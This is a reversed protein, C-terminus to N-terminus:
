RSEKGHCSECKPSLPRYAPGDAGAAHCARCPATAHAGELRFAADRDHDFGPAPAFAEVTHCAECGGKAPRGAFGGGHPDAHCDACTRKAEFKLDGGAHCGTCPTARHAGELAFGFRAHAAVDVTSPRFGRVDHCAACAQGALRGAHPDAHCDLCGASPPRLVVRASGWAAVPVAAGRAHCAACKVAGHKGELPYAGKAHDAAGYAAPTFGSVSHCAACDAPRGALTATGRHADAHCTACTAFAPKKLAATSFDGHCDACAAAAHRGRLPYRTRDHAFRERDVIGFGRTGHCDACGAGLAGKHPDAHCAACSAAPVPSYVPVLHGTGDRKPALRPALHCDDCKVEAHKGTLAYATTDHDFGPTAAWKGADHCATCGADLGGRHIDEHCSACAIELGTFEGGGKGAALRAAPSVEYRALHCDACAAEAHSQALAWGARRHDFRERGGDPWKVMAFDPGAHDPHCSECAQAKVRAAGHFGRNRAALWAVDRHCDGCQASMPERRGGHCQTCRTPGELAAHPRALPGPSIQAGLPVAFLAVLALALVAARGARGVLAV